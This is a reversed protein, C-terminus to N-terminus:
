PRMRLLFTSNNSFGKMDNGPPSSKRPFKDLGHEDRPVIAASAFTALALSVLTSVRM